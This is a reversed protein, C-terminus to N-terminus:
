RFDAATIQVSEGAGIDLEIETDGYKVRCPKGSLSRLEVMNLAGNEWSLDVTFNGRAKLGRAEGSAWADPLAPLLHIVENQSQLLMEALGATFGFNGDIQFPPHMDFLNIETSKQLFLRIHEHAMNGDLLRASFNILWARSWGTGAGGNALRFDLTKRAAQFIEPTDEATIDNGPHLAFLHSMHRHGKEPEEYFKDWELLRGNPGIQLGPHLNDRKSKVMRTFDDAIGLVAAAALVEDFVESIIQQDMAAGLAVAAPEGDSAIYSNEPSTTPFSIWAGTEPHESLWDLYFEAIAKLAPYARERLFDEDQTFQYHEWMHQVIWGGGHIWSGWYPQLARMWAPAWLDTTHHIVAGSM